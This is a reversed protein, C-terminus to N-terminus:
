PFTILWHGVVSAEPEKDEDGIDNKEEEREDREEYSNKIQLAQIATEAEDLCKKFDGFVVNHNAEGRSNIALKLMESMKQIHGINLFITFFSVNQYKKIREEHLTLTNLLKWFRNQLEAQKKKVIPFEILSQISPLNLIKHEGGQHSKIVCHACIVASEIEFNIKETDESKDLLQKVTESCMVCCFMKDLLQKEHCEVCKANKRKEKELKRCKGKEDNDNTVTLDNFKQTFRLSTEQFTNTISIVEDSMDKIENDIREMFEEQVSTATSKKMLETM